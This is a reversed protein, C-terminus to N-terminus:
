FPQSMEQSREACQGRTERPGANLKWPLASM